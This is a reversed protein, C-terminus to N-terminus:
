NKRWWHHSALGALLAGTANVLVDDVSSVRDLRFAYQAVEVVTSCAAGLALIRPASALAAFRIPAFFGLAAFLVLNGAIGLTGMTVLDQLPILSVRGDVLGAAPGPMMTLWVMPVTGYVMGVEALSLRWATTDLPTRRVRALVWAGLLAIPLGVLTMLVVGNDTDLCGHWHGAMCRPASMLLMRRLAFVAGAVAAFVVAFILFVVKSTRRSPASVRVTENVRTMSCPLRNRRCLRRGPRPSWRPASCPWNRRTPPGRTPTTSSRRPKEAALGLLYDRLNEDLRLVRAPSELVQLSPRRDRGREPRLYYDASIGAPMAVEERRLGPTRRVGTVPIGAQEPTVPERRARLFAGLLNPAETM